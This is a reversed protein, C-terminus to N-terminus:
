ELYVAKYKFLRDEENHNLLFAECKTKNLELGSKETYGVVDKLDLEVKDINDALTGDDLYWTNVSSRLSSTLPHIALCFLLPGLPDGQQCGSASMITNDGYSLFTKEAYCQKIFPYLDPIYLGVQELMNDRYISNFANKFDLKVLVRASNSIKHVYRRGSHVIAEAGGKTGFGLQHPQLLAGMNQNVRRCAVKAVMRRLTSGVAIPRIGGDKKNLATLCAGYLYPCVSQPVNGSLMVDCLAALSNALKVSAEGNSPSLLDKLHQPRLGDLGGASGCPFSTVSVLIEKQTIKTLSQIETVEAPPHFTKGKPHKEQLASLTKSDFPAVADESCLVRVAGRVDGEAVKAEIIKSLMNQTKSKKTMGQVPTAVDFISQNSLNRKVLTALSINRTETSQPLCLSSYSFLLLKHWTNISNERVCQNVLKEYEEAAALRAGKSIRRMVKRTSRLHSLMTHFDENSFPTSPIQGTTEKPAAKNEKAIRLEQARKKNQEIRQLQAATLIVSPKTDVISKPPKTDRLLTKRPLAITKNDSAKNTINEHTVQRTKAARLFSAKQRNITIQNM